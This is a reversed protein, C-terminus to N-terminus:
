HNQINPSNLVTQYNFESPLQALITLSIPSLAIMLLIITMILIYFTVRILFVM